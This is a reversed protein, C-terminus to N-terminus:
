MTLPNKLPQITKIEKSKAFANVADQIIDTDIVSPLATSKRSTGTRGSSTGTRRGSSASTNRAISRVSEFDKVSPTGSSKKRSSTGSSRKRSTFRVRGSNSSVNVPEKTTAPPTQEAESSAKTKNRAHSADTHVLKGDAKIEQEMETKVEETVFKDVRKLINNKIRDPYDRYDGKVVIKRTTKGNVFNDRSETNDKLTSAKRSSAVKQNAKGLFYNYDEESMEDAYFEFEQEGIVEEVNKEATIISKSYSDIRDNVTNIFEVAQETTLEYTKNDYKVNVKGSEEDIKISDSWDELRGLEDQTIRHNNLQEETKESFSPLDDPSLQKQFAFSQKAEAEGERAANKLMEIKGKDDKNKYTESYIIDRMKETTTKGLIKAYSEFEKGSLKYQIGDYTITTKPTRPFVELDIEGLRSLEKTIDNGQYISTSGPNFMANFVDLAKNGTTTLKEEGFPTIKAPLKNKAFPINNAILAGSKKYPDTENYPNRQTDDTAYSLRRVASPIFGTVAGTGVALLVDNESGGYQLTTTIDRITQLSPLDYVQEFTTSLAAKGMNVPNIKGSKYLEYGIAMSTNMPEIWGITNIVDGEQLATDEGNILRDIASFNVTYDVGLGLSTQFNKKDKDEDDRKVVIGMSSLMSWALILGTGTLSRGLALAAQRQTKASVGGHAAENVLRGFNVIFKAYGLPSYEIGRTVIAGPVQTYKCVIDGVGFEWRGGFNLAKKLGQLVIGIYTDDQFTRYKAMSIAEEAIEEATFGCKKLRKLSEVTRHEVGGKTWEDPIQMTYSLAREFAGGIKGGINNGKFTRRYAQRKNREMYKNIDTGTQVDLAIDIYTKIANEMSARRNAKGDVGKKGQFVGRDFGVTNQKTFLGVIKDVVFGFDNAITDTVGFIGNGLLNREITRPNLLQSITQLTSAYRGFKRPAKDQIMGFVQKLAVDELFEIDQSQLAKVVGSGTVTHRKRSQTIILDILDEKTKLESITELTKYIKKKEKPKFHEIKHKDLVKEVHSEPFMSMQEGEVREDLHPPTDDGPIDDIPIDNSSTDKNKNKPNNGGTKPNNKESEFKRKEHKDKERAEEIEREFDKNRSAKKEIQKEVLEDAQRVFDLFQGEPTLKNLIKLAQIAQGANTMKERMMAYVDVAKEVNGESQYQMVLALGKATDEATWETRKTAFEALVADSGVDEITKQANEYTEKNTIGEYVFESKREEAEAKFEDTHVDKQMSNEYLQSLKDTTDEGDNTTTRKVKEDPNSITKDSATDVSDNRVNPDHSQATGMQQKVAKKKYASVVALQHKRTDPVAEVVYYTGDIRKSLKILPAPQQNKDRYEMSVDDLLEIDDYNDIVYQIRAIDKDDSMSNDTKGNMGHDKEIHTISNNKVVNGFDSTDIGTLTKIDGVMRDSVDGLVFVSKNDKPNEKAREVFALLDEDVADEYEQMIKLQEPTHEASEKMSYRKDPNTEDFRQSLPIVDGNDDYIIASLSKANNETNKYAESWGNDYGFEHISDGNTFLHKAPVKQKIIRYDNDFQRWGHEKAYDETLTVWDGNRITTDKVSSPVARYATVIKEPNDKMSWIVNIAKQDFPAGDGYYYAARSSYIEDGYISRLDYAPNDYKRSPARHDMRWDDDTTYGKGKAYNKVFDNLEIVRDVQEMIDAELDVNEARETLRSYERDIESDEAGRGFRRFTLPYTDADSVANGNRNSGAGKVVANNGIYGGGVNRWRTSTSNSNQSKQNNRENRVENRIENTFAEIIRENGDIPIAISLPTNEVNDFVCFYNANYVYNQSGAPEGNRMAETYKEFAATKFNRRDRNDFQNENTIVAKSYRVSSDNDIGNGVNAKNEAVERLGDYYMNEFQKEKHNTTSEKVSNKVDPNSQSINHNVLTDDSPAGPLQLRSQVLQQIDENNKTYLINSNGNKNTLLTDLNQKGYSSAIENTIGIAGNKNLHLPIIVPNGHTDEWETLLIMSENQSNSKLIAVPNAIQQPLQKLAPIGLNHGQKEAGFYETPYAIKYMTSQNITIPINSAGCRQLLEPTDGVTIVARSPMEGSFTKDVNEAFRKQCEETSLDEVKSGDKVSYKVTQDNDSISDNASLLAMPSQGVKRSTIRGTPVKDTKIKGVNYITAMDHTKAKEGAFSYRSENKDVFFGSTDVDPETNTAKNSDAVLERQIKLLNKIVSNFARSPNRGPKRQLVTDNGFNQGRGLPGNSNGMGDRRRLGEDSLIKDISESKDDFRRGYSLEELINFLANREIEGQRGKSEYLITPNEFDDTSYIAFVQKGSVDTFIWNGGDTIKNKSRRIDYKITQNLTEMDTASLDTHWKVKNYRVNDGNDVAFTVGDGNNRSAERLANNWLNEAQNLQSYTLEVGTRNAVPSKLKDYVSAKASNIIDMVKGALTPNGNAIKDISSKDRLFKEAIEAAVEERAVEESYGYKNQLENIRNNLAESNTAEAAQLIYTEFANYSEPANVKFAHTYEHGATQPISTDANASIDVKGRPVFKTRSTTVDEGQSYRGNLEQGIDTTLDDHVENKVGTNRALSDLLANENDIARVNKQYQRGVNWDSLDKGKNQKEQMKQAYKNASTAEDSELGTEILGKVGERSEAGINVTNNYAGIATSGANMILGSIAGQGGSKLTDYVYRDVFAKKVADEESMGQTVLSQVYREYESTDDNIIRDAINGAINSIMEEGGEIGANKLVNVIAQKMTSPPSKLVKLVNDLPIKETLIEIGGAVTGSLFANGADTEGQVGRNVATEGAVSAGMFPLAAERLLAIRAVNDVIGTGINYAGKGVPSMGLTVGKDLANKAHTLSNATTYPDYPVYEDGFKQKAAQVGSDVYSMPGGVLGFMRAAVSGIVKNDNAIKANYLSQTETQRKNLTLEMKDLFDDAYESGLKNYLYNYVDKEKDTLYVYKENWQSDPTRTYPVQELTKPSIYSAYAPNNEIYEAVEETQPLTHITIGSLGRQLKSDEVPLKSYKEFDDAYVVDYYNDLKKWYKNDKKNKESIKKATEYAESLHTFSFKHGTEKEFESIIDSNEAGLRNLAEIRADGKTSNIVNRSKDYLNLMKDNLEKSLKYQNRGIGVLELDEHKYTGLGDQLPNDVKYGQNQLFDYYFQGKIANEKNLSSNDRTDKWLRLKDTQAQQKNKFDDLWSSQKKKGAITSPTFVRGNNKRDRYSQYGSYFLSKEPTISSNTQSPASTSKKETSKPSVSKSVPNKEGISKNNEERRKQFDEYFSSDQKKEEVPKLKTYKPVFKSSSNWAM